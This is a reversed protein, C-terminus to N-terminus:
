LKGISIYFKPSALLIIKEGLPRHECRGKKNKVAM